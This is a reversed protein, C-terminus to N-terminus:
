LLRINGGMWRRVDLVVLTWAVGGGLSVLEVVATSVLCLVSIYMRLYATLHNPWTIIGYERYIRSRFVHLGALWCVLGNALFGVM